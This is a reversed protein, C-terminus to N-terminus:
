RGARRSVEWLARLLLALAVIGAIVEVIGLAVELVELVSFASEIGGGMGTADGSVSLTTLGGVLVVVLSVIGATRLRGRSRAIVLASLVISAIWAAAQVSTGALLLLGSILWLPSDGPLTSGVVHGLVEAGPGTVLSLLLYLALVLVLARAVRLPPEPVPGPSYPPGPRGTGRDSGPYGGSGPQQWSPPGGPADAPGTPGPYTM